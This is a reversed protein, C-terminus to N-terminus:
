VVKGDVEKIMGSKILDYYIRRFSIIINDGTRKFGFMKATTVFLDKPTIGYSRRAIVKMAKGLEEDCICTIPRIYDDEDNPVRIKLQNFDKLTIFDGKRDITEALYWRFNYEVGERVKSTSKQNGFLSAVRRCLEEFHIPQEIEITKKIIEHKSLFDYDSLIALQYPIFEYGDDSLDSMDFDEEIDISCVSVDIDEL